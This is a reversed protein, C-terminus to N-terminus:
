RHGPRHAAELGGARRGPAETAAAAAHHPGPPGAATRPPEFPPLGGPSAAPGLGRARCGQAAPGPRQVPDPAEARRTAVPPDGEPSRGASPPTAWRPVRRLAGLRGRGATPPPSPTALHAPTGTDGPAAGYATSPPPRRTPAGSADRRWSCPRAPATRPASPRGPRRVGGRGSRGRAWAAAAAAMSPHAVPTAPPLVSGDPTPGPRPARQDGGTGAPRGQLPGALASPGPRPLRGPRTHSDRDPVPLPHVPRRVDVGDGGRQAWRSSWRRAASASDLGSWVLLREIQPQPGQVTIGATTFLLSLGETTKTGRDADGALAVGGLQMGEPPLETIGVTM